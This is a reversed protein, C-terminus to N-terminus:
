RLWKAVSSDAMHAYQADPDIGPVDEFDVGRAVARHSSTSAFTSHYYPSDPLPRNKVYPGHGKQRGYTFWVTHGCRCCVERDANNEQQVIHLCHGEVVPCPVEVVDPPLPVSGIYQYETEEIRSTPPRKGRM